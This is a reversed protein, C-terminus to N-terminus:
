RSEDVCVQLCREVLTSLGEDFLVLTSQKEGRAEHVLVWRTLKPHFTCRWDGSLGDGTVRVDPGAPKFRLTQKRYRLVLSGWRQSVRFHGVTEGFHKLDNMLAIRRQRANSEVRRRELERESEEQAQKDIGARLRVALDSGPRSEDM